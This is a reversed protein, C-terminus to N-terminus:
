EALKYGVGRVTEILEAAAPDAASLKKRLTQVHADVTRTQGVVSYGWVHDLLQSRSLAIGRNALLYRLMEFEKRTLQVPKGAVTVEYRAADLHIPGAELVTDNVGSQWMGAQALGHRRARTERRLLANVRSVLEMMGFPKSLYDDAGADLGTVTDYETSKATLMMVPVDRTESRSRLRALVSFGDEGPLMVDLLILDPVQRELAAYLEPARSFGQTEHGTQGLTYIALNRIQEDDELYYIM